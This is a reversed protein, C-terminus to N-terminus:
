AEVQARGLVLDALQYNHGFWQMTQGSGMLRAAMTRAAAAFADDALASTVDRASGWVRMQDGGGDRYHSVEFDLRPYAAVLGEGELADDLPASSIVVFADVEAGARGHLVFVEMGRMCIASLRGRRTSPMCSLAWYDKETRDPDSVCVDLYARNAAAVDRLLGLRRLRNYSRQKTPSARMSPEDRPRPRRRRTSREGASTRPRKGKLRDTSDRSHHRIVARRAEGRTWEHGCALCALSKRGDALDRVLRLNDSECVPCAIPM